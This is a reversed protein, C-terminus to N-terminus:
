IVCICIHQKMRSIDTFMLYNTVSEFEMINVYGEAVGRSIESTVIEAEPPMELCERRVWGSLGTLVESIYYWEASHDTQIQVFQGKALVCIIKSEVNKDAFVESDKVTVASVGVNKMAGLIETREYDSYIKEGANVTIVASVISSLMFLTLLLRKFM